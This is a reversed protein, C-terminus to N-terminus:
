HNAGVGATAANPTETRTHWPMFRLHAVAAGPVLPTPAGRAWARFEDAYWPSLPHGSEGGPLEFLGPAANAPTVVMRMSAGFTPTQVRPMHRDGPLQTAPMNLWGGFPGLAVAFPHDVHVTNRRGWTARAFGIGPKWLRNIVADAAHVLLANWTAYAPNLWNKPRAEVLRWLPGEIQRSFPLRAGPDRVRLRKLVPAFAERAVEDRFTRVLRYGVSSVAARGDWDVVAKRLARRRPHYDLTSPSLVQLLLDHWRQLFVARDDLQIGLLDTSTIAGRGALRDLDAAIQHARAGDSFGGAGLLDGAARDDVRNNATALYGQSPDVIRPYADAPLWGDWGCTGSAWSEPVSYDCGSRRAPIRGMVSWGIDGQQDVVLFNQAPIGSHAAIALAQKVSTATELRMFDLNVGGPQALSWHSVLLDGDATKGIVPGWQTREVRLPVPAEGRVGLMRQSVVVTASGAPTAYTPPSGAGPKVRVLDAWDGGSDTLGWAIHGNTGIVLAPVGPLFVGTLEVRAHDDDLAPFVLRARYWTPPVALSLHPDNALLPLGSKTYRGSLAFSNSGSQPAPLIATSSARASAPRPASAGASAPGPATAAALTFVSTGPIPPLTPPKGAMPAAWHTDPAMLFKVVPAPFQARLAALARKDAAMPSHLRFGMTFIVLISDEPRWPRPRTHLLLYPWPRVTLAALGENVGLTFAELRARQAAPADLYIREALTRLDFPARARDLALGGPGVLAAVEGAAARRLFDMQLFRDQAELFGLVRWADLEDSATITPVGHHDRTVEVPGALGPLRITGRTQPLSGRLLLYSGLTAVLVVAALGAGGWLLAKRWRQSPVLAQLRTSLTWAAANAGDPEDTQQRKKRLAREGEASSGPAARAPVAPAAPM